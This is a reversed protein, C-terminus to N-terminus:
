SVSRIVRIINEPYQSLGLINVINKLLFFGGVESYIFENIAEQYQLERKNMHPLVGSAIVDIRNRWLKLTHVSVPTDSVASVVVPTPISDSKALLIVSPLVPTNTLPVPTRAPTPSINPALVPDKELSTPVPTNSDILAGATVDFLPTWALARDAPTIHGPTNSTGFMPPTATFVRRWESLSTSLNEITGGTPNEQSGWLPSVTNYEHEAADTLYLKDLSINTSFHVTSPILSGEGGENEAPRGDLDPTTIIGVPSPVFCGASFVTTNLRTNFKHFAGGAGSGGDPRLLLTRSLQLSGLDGSSESRTPGTTAVDSAITTGTLPEFIDDRDDGDASDKRTMSVMLCALMSSALSGSFSSGALPTRSGSRLGDIATSNGALMSVTLLDLRQEGLPHGSGTDYEPEYDTTSHETIDTVDESASWRPRRNFPTELLTQISPEQLSPSPSLNTNIVRQPVGAPRKRPDITESSTVTQQQNRPRVSREQTSPTLGKRDQPTTSTAYFAHSLPPTPSAKIRLSNSRQPSNTRTVGTNSTSIDWSINTSGVCMTNDTLTSDTNNIGDNLRHSDFQVNASGNSDWRYVSGSHDIHQTDTNITYSNYRRTDGSSSATTTLQLCNRDIPGEDVVNVTANLCTGDISHIVSGGVKVGDAGSRDENNISNVLPVKNIHLNTTERPTDNAIKPKLAAGLSNSVAVGTVMLLNRGETITQGPDKMGSIRGLGVKTDRNGSPNQRDSLHKESAGGRINIQNLLSPPPISAPRPLQATAAFVAGLSSSRPSIAATSARAALIQSPGPSRTNSIELQLPTPVSAILARPAPLQLTPSVIISTTLFPNGHYNSNSSKAPLLPVSNLTPVDNFSRLPVESRNTNFHASTGPLVSAPVSVGANHNVGANHKTNVTSPRTIKHSPHHM